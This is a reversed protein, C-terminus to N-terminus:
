SDLFTYDKTKMWYIISLENSTILNKKCGKGKKYALALNKTGIINGLEHSKKYMLFSQTFKKKKYYIYGLHNIADVYDLSAAHHLFTLGKQKKGNKYYYRGLWTIAFKSGYQAAKKYLKKRKSMKVAWFARFCTSEPHHHIKSLFVIYNIGKELDYYDSKYDCYIRGLFYFAEIINNQVDEILIPVLIDDLRKKFLFNYQHLKQELDIPHEPASPEYCINVM